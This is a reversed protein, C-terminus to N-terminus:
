SEATEPQPSSTLGPRLKDRALRLVQRESKFSAAELAEDLRFWRAEEVEHDHDALDGEVAAMLFFHVYKHVLVPSGRANDPVL